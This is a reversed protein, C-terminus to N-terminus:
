FGGYWDYGQEAWYDPPRENTFTISGIQKLQKYGYKIPLVHRLPAGHPQTLPAGNMEYALLSQPHVASERDLGVYYQESDTATSPLPPTRLGVYQPLKSPDQGLHGLLDVMRVGRWRIVRTWGEICNLEATLETAPLAKLDDLTFLKPEGFGEVHLKWDVPAVDVAVGGNVKADASVDRPGFQRAEGQGFARAISEDFEFAKRFPWPKGGRQGRSDLWWYAAGTGLVAAGAWLFSKRSIRRMEKEPTPHETNPTLVEDSM